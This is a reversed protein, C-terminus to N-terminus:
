NRGRYGVDRAREIAQEVTKTIGSHLNGDKDRYDWQVRDGKLIESYFEEYQFCDRAKPPRM